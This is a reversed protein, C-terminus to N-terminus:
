KEEIIYIYIIITLAFSNKEVEITYKTNKKQLSGPKRYRALSNSCEEIIYVITLTFPNKEVGSVLITFM